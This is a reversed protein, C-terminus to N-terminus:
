ARTSAKGEQLLIGLKNTVRNSPHARESRPIPMETQKPIPTGMFSSPGRRRLSSQGNYGKGPIYYHSALCTLLLIFVTQISDGLQVAKFPTTYWFKEYKGKMKSNRERAPTANRNVLHTVHRYIGAELFLKIYVHILGEGDRPPAISNGPPCSAIGAGDPRVVYDILKHDFLRFIAEAIELDGPHLPMTVKMLGGSTKCIQRYCADTLEVIRFVSHGPTFLGGRDKAEILKAFHSPLLDDDTNLLSEACIECKLKTGVVRVVNGSIYALCNRYFDSYHPDSLASLDIIDLADIDDMDLVKLKRVRKLPLMGGPVEGEDIQAIWNGTNTSKLLNQHWISKM